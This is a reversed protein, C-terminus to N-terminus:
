TYSKTMKMVLFHFTSYASVMLEVVLVGDMRIQYTGRCKSICHLGHRVMPWLATYSILM